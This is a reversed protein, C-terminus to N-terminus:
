EGAAMDQYLSQRMAVADRENKLKQWLEFKEVDEASFAGPNISNAPWNTEPHRKGQWKKGLEGFKSLPIAGEPPAIGYMMGKELLKAVQDDLSMSLNPNKRKISDVLSEKPRQKKRRLMKVLAADNNVPAASTPATTQDLTEPTNDPDGYSYRHLWPESFM